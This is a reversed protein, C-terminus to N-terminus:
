LGWFSGTEYIRNVAFQLFQLLILVILPSFDLGGLAPVIRRVPGLVPETLVYLIRDVQMAIPHRPNVVGFAVLWSMVVMAIIIFTFLGIVTNFLWLLAPIM